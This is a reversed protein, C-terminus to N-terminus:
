TEQLEDQSREFVLIFPGRRGREQMAALSWGDTYKDQIINQLVQRTLEAVTGTDVEIVLIRKSNTMEKIPNRRGIPGRVGLPSRRALLVSGSCDVM